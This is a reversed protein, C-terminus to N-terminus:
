QSLLGLAQLRVAVFRSDTCQAASAILLAGARPDAPELARVEAPAHEDDFLM